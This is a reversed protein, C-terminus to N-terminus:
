KATRIASEIQNYFVSSVVPFEGHEKNSISTAFPQLENILQLVKNKDIKGKNSEPFTEQRLGKIKREIERFKETEQSNFTTILTMLVREMLKVEDKNQANSIKELWDSAAL